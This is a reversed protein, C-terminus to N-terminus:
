DESEAADAVKYIVSRKDKDKVIQGAEALKKMLATLKQSSIEHEAFFESNAKIIDAGRLGDPNSELTDMIVDMVEKDREAKEKQAKTMTTAKKSLQEIKIDVWETLEDPTVSTEVTEPIGVAEIISKIVVFMEKNTVKNTAM